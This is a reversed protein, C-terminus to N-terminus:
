EHVEKMHGHVIPGGNEVRDASEPLLLHYFIFIFIFYHLCIIKGGPWQKGGRERQTEKPANYIRKM